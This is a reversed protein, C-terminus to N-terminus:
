GVVKLEPRLLDALGLGSLVGGILPMPPKLRGGSGPDFFFGALGLLGGITLVGYSWWDPRKEPFISALAGAALVGGLGGLLYHMTAQLKEDGTTAEFVQGLHAQPMPVHAPAWHFGVPRMLPVM